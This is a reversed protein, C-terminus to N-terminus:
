SCCFIDTGLAWDPLLEEVSMRGRNDDEDSMEPLRASSNAAAAM